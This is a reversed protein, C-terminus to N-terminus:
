EGKYPEPLPMWAIVKYHSCGGRGDSYKDGELWGNHEDCWHYEGNSCDIYRAFSYKTYDSEYTHTLTVLVSRGDKPPGESCPIWGCNTDVVDFYENLWGIVCELKFSGYAEHLKCDSLDLSRILYYPKNDIARIRVIIEPNVARVKEVSKKVEAEKTMAEIM